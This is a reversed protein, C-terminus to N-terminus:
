DPYFDLNLGVGCVDPWLTYQKIAPKYWGSFPKFLDIRDIDDWIGIWLPFESAYEWDSGVVKEYSGIPTYIGAKKGRVIIQDLMNKVFLRNKEIDEFWKYVEVDVWIRSYNLGELADVLKDVQLKPTNCPVCPFLYVDVDMGAALANKINQTANIDVIDLSRYARIIAFDRGSNKICKFDPLTQGGPAGVDIGLRASIPLIYISFLLITPIKPNM